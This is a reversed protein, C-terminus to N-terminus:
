SPTRLSRAAPTSKLIGSAILGRKLLERIAASSSPMRTQFWFDDVAALEDASLFFQLRETRDREIASKIVRWGSEQLTMRSRTLKEEVAGTGNRAVIIAAGIVYPQASRGQTL